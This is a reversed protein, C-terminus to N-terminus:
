IDFIQLCCNCWLNFPWCKRKRDYTSDKRWVLNRVLIKEEFYVLVAYYFYDNLNSETYEIYM